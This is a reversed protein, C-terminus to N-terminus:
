WPSRPRAPRPDQARRWSGPGHWLVAAPRARVAACRSPVHVRGCCGHLLAAAAVWSSELAEESSAITTAPPRTLSRNSGPVRRTSRAGSVNTARAAGSAGHAPDGRGVLPDREVLFDDGPWAVTLSSRLRGCASSHPGPWGRNSATTPCAIVAVRASTSRPATRYSGSAPCGADKRNRENSTTSPLPSMTRRTKAAARSCSSPRTSSSRDDESRSKM